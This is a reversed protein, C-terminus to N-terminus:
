IVIIDIKIEDDIIDLIDKESTGKFNKFLIIHKM